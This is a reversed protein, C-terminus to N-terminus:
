PFKVRHEDRAYVRKFRTDNTFFDIYEKKDKSTFVIPKFPPKITATKKGSEDFVHITGGGDPLFVKDGYSQRYFINKIMGMVLPNLTKGRQEPSKIRFFEKEKKKDAGHISYTIYRITGELARGMVAYKKDLPIHQNEPRGTKFEYKYNGKRDFVVAKGFSNVFIRKPKLYVRVSPIWPSPSAFFEKPGEGQKGFKKLLKLDEMSYVLISVGDIIVMDKGDVLIADPKILEDMAVTKASLATVVILALFLVTLFVKKM